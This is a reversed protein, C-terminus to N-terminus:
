RRPPGPPHEPRRENRGPRRHPARRRRPCRTGHNRTRRGSSRNSPPQASLGGKDWRSTKGGVGSLGPGRLAGAKQMGLAAYFPRLTLPGLGCGFVGEPSSPRGLPPAAPSRCPGLHTFTPVVPQTSSAEATTRGKAVSRARRAIMAPRARVRWATPPLNTSIRMRIAKSSSYRPRRSNIAKAKRPAAWLVLHLGGIQPGEPLPHCAEVGVQHNGADRVCHVRSAPGRPYLEGRVGLTWRPRADAPLAPLREVRGQLIQEGDRVLGLPQYPVFTAGPGALVGSGVSPRGRRASIVSAVSGSLSRSSSAGRFARACTSPMTVSALITFSCRPFPRKSYAGGFDAVPLRSTSNLGCVRQLAVSDPLELFPHFEVANWPVRAEDECDRDAGLSPM